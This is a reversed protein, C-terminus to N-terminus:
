SKRRVFHATLWRSDSLSRRIYPKKPPGKAVLLTVLFFLHFFRM